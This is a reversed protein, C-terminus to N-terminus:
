VNVKICLRNLFFYQFWNIWKQIFNLVCNWSTTKSQSVIFWGDCNAFVLKAGVITYRFIEEGFTRCLSILVRPFDCIRWRLTCITAASFSACHGGSINSTMRSSFWNSSAHSCTASYKSAYQLAVCGGSKEVTGRATGAGSADAFVYVRRTGDPIVILRIM